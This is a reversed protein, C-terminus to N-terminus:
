WSRPGWCVIAAYALGGAITIIGGTTAIARVGTLYAALLFIWGVTTAAAPVILAVSSCRTSM